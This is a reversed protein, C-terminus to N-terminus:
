KVDEDKDRSQSRVNAAVLLDNIVGEADELASRASYIYDAADESTLSYPDDLDSCPPLIDRLALEKQELVDRASKVAASADELVEKIKMVAGGVVPKTDRKNKM